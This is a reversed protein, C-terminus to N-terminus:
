KDFIVETSCKECEKSLGFIIFQCIFNWWTGVYLNTEYIYYDTHTLYVLRTFVHAVIFIFLSLVCASISIGFVQNLEQVLDCLVTLSKLILNLNMKADTKAGQVIFPNKTEQSIYDGLAKNLSQFRTRLIYVATTYSYIMISINFFPVFYAIWLKIGITSYYIAIGSM